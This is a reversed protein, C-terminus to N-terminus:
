ALVVIKGDVYEGVEDMYEEPEPDPGIVRDISGYAVAREYWRVAIADPHEKAIEELQKILEKINM